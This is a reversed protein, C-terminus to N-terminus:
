LFAALQNHNAAGVQFMENGPKMLSYKQFVKGAYSIM